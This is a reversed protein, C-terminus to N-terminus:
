TNRTVPHRRNTVLPAALIALLAVWILGFAMLTNSSMPQQYAVVAVVLQTTPLVFQFLGMISLPLHSAAYSFMILPLASVLGSLGLLWLLLTPTQEPLALTVDTVSLVLGCAITLFLTEMLLGSMADLSTVKKLCAYAGWTAGITLYVWHELEGSRALLLAIAALIVALAAVRIRDLKEQFFGVGVGIAVCPAVLYGLGSEVVHGHISAWIFTAWNLVVLCSAAIHIMVVRPTISGPLARLRGSVWMIAFLTALSVLIRYGVLTAPAISGLLRWYLSSAGLIINASVGAAAAMGSSIGAQRITM